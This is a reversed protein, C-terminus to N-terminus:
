IPNNNFNVHLFYIPIKIQQLGQRVNYIKYEGSYKSDIYHIKNYNLVDTDSTSIFGSKKVAFIRIKRFIHEFISKSIFSNKKYKNKGNILLKKAGFYSVVIEMISKSLSDVKLYGVTSQANLYAHKRM